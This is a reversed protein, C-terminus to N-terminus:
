TNSKIAVTMNKVLTGILQVKKESSAGFRVLATQAKGKIPYRIPKQEPIMPSIHRKKLRGVKKDHEIAMARLIM